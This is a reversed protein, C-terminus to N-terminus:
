KQKGWAKLTKKLKFQKKKKKKFGNHEYIDGETQVEGHCWLLLSKTVETKM